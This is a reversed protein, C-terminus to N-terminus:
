LGQRDQHAEVSRLDRRALRLGLGPAAGLRDQATLAPLMSDLLPLAVAAGLGKLLTRRALSKKTIFTM